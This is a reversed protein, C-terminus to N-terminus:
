NDYINTTLPKNFSLLCLWINGTFLLRLRETFSLRWCTIVEGQPSQHKYAPLPLYEPQNEAFITNVEKFKKPKM